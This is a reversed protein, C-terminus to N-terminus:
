CLIGGAATTVAIPRKTAGTVTHKGKVSGGDAQKTRGYAGVEQDKVISISGCAVLRDIEEAATGRNVEVKIVFVKDIRSILEIEIEKGALRVGSSRLIQATKRNGKVAKGELGVRAATDVLYLVNKAVLDEICAPTVLVCLRSDKIGGGIVGVAGDIINHCYARTVIHTINERLCSVIVSYSIRENIAIHYRM